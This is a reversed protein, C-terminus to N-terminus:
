DALSLKDGSIQVRQGWASLIADEGNHTQVAEVEIEVQFTAGNYDYTTVIQKYLGNVTTTQHVKASLAGDVVLQDTFNSTTAGVPLLKTYYLVTREETRSSVDEIWDTGVNALGLKILDPSLERLKEGNEDMWYKYINVRVFQDIEGSNRVALEEKYAVGPNIAGAGQFLTGKYERWSGDGDKIYDRWSLKSGNEMLTVGIDDMSVRTGFSDSIESPAARIGGITSTILLAAAVVFLLVTTVPSRLIKKLKEMM